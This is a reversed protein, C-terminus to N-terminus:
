IVLFYAVKKLELFIDMKRRLVAGFPGRIMNEPVSMTILELVAFVLLVGKLALKSVFVSLFVHKCVYVYM